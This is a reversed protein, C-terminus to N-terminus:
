EIDDDDGLGGVRIRTRSLLIYAGSSADVQDKYTSLPFFQLEELLPGNWPAALMFANGLNVQVSLPDARLAKDGTPREIRVRYGLAALRKASSEASEKGGSGPEQELGVLVQYGDSKATNTIMNERAGSEWQGRVVGLWWFRGLKDKGMKVGATYAGGDRTAAKDWFRVIEVFDSLKPTAPESNVRDVKFMGGGLPVPRQNMQGSYAYEGLDVKMQRLTKRKLRFRDLLGKEYFKAYKKPRVVKEPDGEVEAPFKILRVPIGGEKSKKLMVASPDSQHLRQMILITVTVAKDIMRTKLTETVWRNATKLEAESFARNPDIPDDVILFHGHFGTVTGNTGVCFRTGGAQNKFYTKTNQDDRLDAKGFLRTWKESKIVDRCKLSLDMALQQSYSACITRATKMRTWVWAPFMVSCITSKSTGPPVNVIIDHVRPEGRFVREAVEQLESCIARIHWNWVPRDPIVTDWFRKVFDYFSSKCLSAELEDVNVGGLESLLRKKKRDGKRLKTREPRKFRKITKM